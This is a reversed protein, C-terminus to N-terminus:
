DLVVLSLVDDADDAWLVGSPVVAALLVVSAPLPVCTSLPLVASGGIITSAKGCCVAARDASAVLKSM